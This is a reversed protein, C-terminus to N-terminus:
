FGCDFCFQYPLADELITMRCWHFCFRVDLSDMGLIDAVSVGKSLPTDEPLINNHKLSLLINEVPVNQSDALDKLIVEFKDGQTSFIVFM